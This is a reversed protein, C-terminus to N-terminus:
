INLLRMGDANNIFLSADDGSLLELSSYEIGLESLKIKQGILYAAERDFIM